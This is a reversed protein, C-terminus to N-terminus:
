EIEQGEGSRDEEDESDTNNDDANMGGAQSDNEDDSLPQRSWKFVAPAPHDSQEQSALFCALTPNGKARRQLEMASADNHARVKQNEQEVEIPPPIM